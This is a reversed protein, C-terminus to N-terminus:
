KKVPAPKEVKKEAPAVKKEAPKAAEKKAPAKVKETKVAPTQAFLSGAFAVMAVLAFIKKM